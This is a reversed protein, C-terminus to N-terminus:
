KRELKKTKPNYKRTGKSFFKKVFWVSFGATLCLMVIFYISMLMLTKVLM